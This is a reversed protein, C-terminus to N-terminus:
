IGLLYKLNEIIQVYTKIEKHDTNKKLDETLEKLKLNIDSIQRLPEIELTKVAEEVSEKIIDDFEFYLKESSFLLMMEAAEISKLLQNIEKGTIKNKLDHRLKSLPGKIGFPTVPWVQIFKPDPSEANTIFINFSLAWYKLSIPLNVFLEEPVTIYHTITRVYENRFVKLGAEEGEDDAYFSTQDELSIWDNIRAILEEISQAKSKLILLEEIKEKKVSRKQYSDFVQKFDKFDALTHNSLPKGNSNGPLHTASLQDTEPFVSLIPQYLFASDPDDLDKVLTKYIKGKEISFSKTKSNWEVLNKPDLKVDKLFTKIESISSGSLIIIPVDPNKKRITSVLNRGYENSVSSSDKKHYINFDMLVLLLDHEAVIRVADLYNNTSYVWQFKEGLLEELRKNSSERLTTEDEVYLLKYNKGADRALFAEAQEATISDYRKQLTVPIILKAEVLDEEINRLIINAGDGSTSKLQRRSIFLGLGTSNEKKNDKGVRTPKPNNIAELRLQEINEARNIFSVELFAKNTDSNHESLNVSIILLPRCQKKIAYLRTHQLANNFIVNMAEEMFASVVSIQIPPLYSINFHFELEQNLKNGKTDQDDLTKLYSKASKEMEQSILGHSYEESEPVDPSQNGKVMNGFIFKYLETIKTINILDTKIDSTELLKDIVKIMEDIKHRDNLNSIYGKASHMLSPLLTMFLENTEKIATKKNKEEQVLRRIIMTFLQKLDLSETKNNYINKKMDNDSVFVMTFGVNSIYRKGDLENLNSVSQNPDFSIINVKSEVSGLWDEFKIQNPQNTKNDNWINEWKKKNYLFFENFYAQQIESLLPIESMKVSHDAIFCLGDENYLNYTSQCFSSKDDDDFGDEEKNYLGVFLSAIVAQIKERSQDNVPIKKLDFDKLKNFNAQIEENEPDEHLDDHFHIRPCEDKEVKGETLWKGSFLNGDKDIKFNSKYIIKKDTIDFYTELDPMIPDKDEETKDLREMNSLYRENDQPRNSKFGAEFVLMDLFNKNNSIGPHFDLDNNLKASKFNSDPFIFIRNFPFGEISILSDLDSCLLKDIVTQAILMGKHQESNTLEQEDFVQNIGETYWYRSTEGSEEVMVKLSNNTVFGLQGYNINGIIHKLKFGLEDLFPGDFVSENDEFIMLHIPEIIDLDEIKENIYKKDLYSVILLVIYQSNLKIFKCFPYAGFPYNNYKELLKLNWTKLESKLFENLMVNHKRKDNDSIDERSTDKRKTKLQPLFQNGRECLHLLLINFLKEPSVNYTHDKLEAQCNSLITSFHEDYDALMDKKGDFQVFKSSYAINSEDIFFRYYDKLGAFLKLAKDNHNLGSNEVSTRYVHRILQEVDDGFVFKIINEESWESLESQFVDHILHLFTATDQEFGKSSEKKNKKLPYILNEDM